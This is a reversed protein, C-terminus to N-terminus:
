AFCVRYRVAGALRWFVALPPILVSTVIMEAVHPLTRSTGRLRAACFRMSLLLWVLGGGAALLRNGSALGALAFM